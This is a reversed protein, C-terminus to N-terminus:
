RVWIFPLSRIAHIGSATILSLGFDARRTFWTATVPSWDAPVILFVDWLPSVVHEAFHSKNEGRRRGEAGSRKGGGGSGGPSMPGPTVMPTPTAKADANGGADDPARDHCISAQLSADDISHIARHHAPHIDAVSIVASCRGCTKSTLVPHGWGPSTNDTPVSRAGSDTLRAIAIRMRLASWCSLSTRAESLASTCAM